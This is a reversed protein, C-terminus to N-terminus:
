LNRPGCLGVKEVRLEYTASGLGLGNFESKWYRGEEEKAEALDRARKNLQELNQVQWLKEMANPKKTHSLEIQLNKAARNASDVTTYCETCPLPHYVRTSEPIAISNDTNSGTTAPVLEFLRLMYVFKAIFSTHKLEKEGRGAYASVHDRQVWLKMHSKKQLNEFPAFTAKFLNCGHENLHDYREFLHAQFHEQYQRLTGNFLRRAQSNSKNINTSPHSTLETAAVTSEDEADSWIRQFISYEFYPEADPVLASSTSLIVVPSSELELANAHPQKPSAVSATPNAAPPASKKSLRDAPIAEEPLKPIAKLLDVPKILESGSTHVSPSKDTAEPSAEKERPVQKPVQRSVADHAQAVILVEPVQVAPNPKKVPANIAALPERTTSTNPRPSQTRRQAQPVEVKKEAVRTTLVPPQQQSGGLSQIERAQVPNTGAPLVEFIASIVHPVMEVPVNQPTQKQIKPAQNATSSATPAKEQGAFIPATIQLKQKTTSTPISITTKNAVSSAPVATPKNSLPVQGSKATGVAGTSPRANTNSKALATAPRKALPADIPPGSTMDEAKRKQTSSVGNRAQLKSANYINQNQLTPTRSAPRPEPNKTAMPKSQSKTSENVSSKLAKTGEHALQDQKRPPNALGSQDITPEDSSTPARFMGNAPSGLSETPKRSSDSPGGWTPHPNQGRQNTLVNHPQSQMQGNSGTRRAQVPASESTSTTAANNLKGGQRIGQLLDGVVDANGTAGISGQPPAVSAPGQIHRPVIKSSAVGLRNTTSVPKKTSPLVSEPRAASQSENRASRSTSQVAKVANLANLGPKLSTPRPPMENVQSTTNISKKLPNSAILGPKLNAALSPTENARVSDRLMAGRTTNKAPLSQTGGLTSRDSAANPTLLPTGRKSSNSTMSNSSPAGRLTAQAPKSSGTSAMNTGAQDSLTNPSAIRGAAKAEKKRIMDRLRSFSVPKQPPLPKPNPDPALRRTELPLQRSPPKAAKPKWNVTIELDSGLEEEGRDDSHAIAESGDFEFDSEQESGNDDIFGGLLKPRKPDVRSASCPMDRRETAKGGHTNVTVTPKSRRPSDMAKRRIDEAAPSNGNHSGKLIQSADAHSAKKHLSKPPIYRKGSKSDSDQRGLSPRAYIGSVGAESHGDSEVFESSKYKAASPRKRPDSKVQPRQRKLRQAQTSTQNNPHEEESSTYGTLQLLACNQQSKRSHSLDSTNHLHSIGQLGKSHSGLSRSEDLRGNPLHSRTSSAGSKLSGVSTALPKSLTPMKPYDSLRDFSTVMSQVEHHDLEEDSPTLSRIEDL